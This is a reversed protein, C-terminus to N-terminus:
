CTIGNTGCIFSPVPSLVGNPALPNATPMIWGTSSGASTFTLNSFNSQTQMQTATSYTTLATISGINYSATGNYTYRYSNNASGTATEYVGFIGTTAGNTVTISPVSVITRQIFSGSGSGGTLWGGTVNNAVLTSYTISDSLLISSGTSDGVFSGIRPLGSNVTYTGKVVFGSDVDTFPKNNDYGFVGGVNQVATSSAGAAVTLDMLLVTNTVNFAINSSGDRSGTIGGISHGVASSPNTVNISGSVSCNSLTMGVKFYVNGFIGGITSGVFPNTTIGSSNVTINANMTCGVLSSTASGNQVSSDGFLGGIGSPTGSQTVNMVGGIVSINSMTCEEVHAAIFGTRGTSTISPTKLTLNQISNTSGTTLSGLTIFLGADVGGTSNITLNSISYGNGNFNGDFTYPTWTVGTLDINNAQQLFQTKATCYQMNVLDKPTSILFPSGSAGTGSGQAFLGSVCNSTSITCSIGSVANCEFILVPNKLSTQPINASPIIWTNTSFNTFNSLVIMQAATRSTLGTTTDSPIGASAYYYCNTCSNGTEGYFAHATVNSSLTINAAYVRAITGGSSSTKGVAGGVYSTNAVGSVTIPSMTFSDQLTAGLVFRGILGGIRADAAGSSILITGQSSCRSVVATGGSIEALMGIRLIAGTGGSPYTINGTSYCGSLAVNGLVGILSGLEVTQSATSVTSISVSGTAFVGSISPTTGSARGILAGIIITASASSDQNGVVNASSFSNTVSGGSSNGILGGVEMTGSAGQAYNATITGSSSVGLVTGLNYGALAGIRPGNSTISVSSLNLNMVTNGTIITKFLGSYVASNSNTVSLGSITKGNGDYNWYLDYPTWSGSLTINATQKFYLTTSTNCNGIGTLDTQNAILYPSTSTGSGGSFLGCAGATPDTYTYTVTDGTTVGAQTVQTGVTLTLTNSTTTSKFTATNGALWTTFDTGGTISYTESGLTFQTLKVKCSIDGKYLNVAGSNVTTASLNYGSACGSIVAVPSAGTTVGSHQTTTGTVSFTYSSMSLNSTSASLIDTFKYTVADSGTVGGQTVQSTVYVKILDTSTSINQFTAVDGSLWTSFSVANTGTSAYVTSGFSFQTLKVLCNRDGNYLKVVSSAISANSFTYGTSCGSVSFKLSTGTYVLGFGVDNNTFKTISPDDLYLTKNFKKAEEDPLLNTDSELPQYVLSVPVEVIMGLNQTVDLNNSYDSDSSRKGNSNNKDELYLFDSCYSFSLCFFIFLLIRLLSNVNLKNNCVLKM